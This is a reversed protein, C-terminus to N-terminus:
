QGDALPNTIGAPGIVYLKVGYLSYFASPNNPMAYMPANMILSDGSFKPQFTGVITNGSSQM